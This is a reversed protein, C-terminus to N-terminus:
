GFFGGALKLGTGITGMIQNEAAINEQNNTHEEGFAAEGSSTATRGYNSASNFSSPAEALGRTADEWNKRGMDYNQMDIDNYAKSEAGAAAQSLQLQPGIAAGGPLAINGGGFAATQEGIAKRASSYTAAVNEKAATKRAAVEAYTMGQQNPGRDVIPSFAGMLKSFVSSGAGFVTGLQNRLAGFLGTQDSAISKEQGSAGSFCM